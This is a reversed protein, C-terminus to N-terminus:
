THRTLAFVISIVAAVLGVAGVIWGVIDGMGRGREERANIRTTLQDIKENIIARAQESEARPMLTRFNDALAARFENVSEFRREAANEAKSVARDAAALAAAVAKEQAALAAAVAKEQALFRVDVYERLPIDHSSATM